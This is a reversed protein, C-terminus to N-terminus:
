EAEPPLSTTVEYDCSKSFDRDRTILNPPLLM